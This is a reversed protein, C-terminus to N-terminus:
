FSRVPRVRHAQSRFDGTQNGSGFSQYEAYSPGLGSWGETSSWYGPDIATSFSDLLDKAYLNDYMKKLEASSPLFWDDYGGYVLQACMKAAYITTTKATDPHLSDHYSYTEDGMAAVLMQTNRNGYGMNPSTIDARQAGHATYGNVYLEDGDDALAYIGFKILYTGSEYGPATKDVSPTEGIVVLDAPAAELFRWGNTYNGADYFIIGGAPGTEGLKPKKFGCVSCFDDVYTHYGKAYTTEHGCTAAHWHYTADNTWETEYTHDHLPDQTGSGGSSDGGSSDHQGGEGSGSQSGGGGEGSGNEPETGLGLEECSTFAFLLLVILLVTFVKRM